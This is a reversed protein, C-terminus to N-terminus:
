LSPIEHVERTPLLAADAVTNAIPKEILAHNVPQIAAIAAM